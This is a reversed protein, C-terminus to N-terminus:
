RAGRRVLNWRRGMVLECSALRVPVRMIGPDSTTGPGADTRGVRLRGVCEIRCIRADSRDTAAGKLVSCSPEQHRM